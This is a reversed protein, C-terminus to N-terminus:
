KKMEEPLEHKAALMQERLVAWQERSARIMAADMIKQDNIVRSFWRVAESFSGTRRYLEGILYMLRADNAGVGELEFVKIYSELSYKLFRLEQEENGKYRYLWAIHQLLSAILREKENISQACLLALKYSEVAAEWDRKGSFDRPHLRGGLEKKFGEKQRDSINAGFNETFAFGCHPCVKVVYFDPNENQYYGCFDTDMRTARKFSPRVRSTAFEEECMLCKAKTTYLPELHM